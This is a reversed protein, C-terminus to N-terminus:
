SASDGEEDMYKWYPLPMITELMDRADGELRGLVQRRSLWAYDHAGHTADVDGSIIQAKVFLRLTEGDAETVHGAPANAVHYAEFGGGTTTALSDGRAERVPLPDAFRRGGVSASAKEAASRVTDGEGLEAEPLRWAGGAEDQLLLFLREAPFKLLSRDDAEAAEIAELAKREVEAVRAHDLGDERDAKAVPELAQSALTEPLPNRRANKLAHSWSLYEARWPPDAPVVQPLREVLLSAVVRM